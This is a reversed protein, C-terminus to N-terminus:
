REDIKWSGDERRVPTTSTRPPTGEPVGAIGELPITATITGTDGNVTVKDIKAKTSAQVAQSAVAPTLLIKFQGPCDAPFQDTGTLKRLEAKRTELKATIAKKSATTLQDCATAYDKAALAKTYTMFVTRIQQEDDGSSSSDDSSGCAALLTASAAFALFLARRLTM